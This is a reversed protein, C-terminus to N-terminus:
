QVLLFFSMSNWTDAKTRFTQIHAGINKLKLSFTTVLARTQDIDTLGVAASTPRGNLSLIM